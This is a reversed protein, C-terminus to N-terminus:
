SLTDTLATRGIQRLFYNKSIEPISFSKWTRISFGYSAQDCRKFKGLKWLNESQGLSCDHRGMDLSFNLTFNSTLKAFFTLGKIFCVGLSTSSLRTSSGSRSKYLNPALQSIQFSPLMYQCWLLFSQSIAVSIIIAKHFQLIKSIDLNLVEMKDFGEFYFKVAINAAFLGLPFLLM